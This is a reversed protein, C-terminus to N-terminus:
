DWNWACHHSPACLVRRETTLLRSVRGRLGQWRQPPARTGPRPALGRNRTWLFPRGCAETRRGGDALELGSHWALGLPARHPWSSLCLPLQLSAVGATRKQSRSRMERRTRGVFTEQSRFALPWSLPQLTSGLPLAM